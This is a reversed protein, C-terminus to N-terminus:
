YIYDEIANIQFSFGRDTLAQGTAIHVTVSKVGIEVSAYAQLGTPTVLCAIDSADGAFYNTTWSIEYVGLSKRTVTVDKNPAVYKISPTTGSLNVRGRIVVRDNM